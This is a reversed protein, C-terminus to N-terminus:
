MVESINVKQFGPIRSTPSANYIRDAVPAFVSYTECMKWYASEVGDRRHGRGASYYHVLAKRGANVFENDLRDIADSEYCDANREVYASWKPMDELQLHGCDLGLTIVEAAGGALACSIAVAGTSAPGYLGVEPDESYQKIINVVGINEGYPHNAMPGCIVPFAQGKLRFDDGFTQKLDMETTNDLCCYLAPEPVEVLSQNTATVRRDKLLDFRFGFLSGGGGLVYVREGEFMGRLWEYNGARTVRVAPM